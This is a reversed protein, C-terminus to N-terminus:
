AIADRGLREGISGAIDRITVGSDYQRESGDPLTITIQNSM